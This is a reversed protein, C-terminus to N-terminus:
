DSRKFKVTDAAAVQNYDPLPEVESGNSPGELKQLLPSLLM